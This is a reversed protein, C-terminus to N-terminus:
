AFDQVVAESIAGNSALQKLMPAAHDYRMVVKKRRGSKSRFTIKLVETQSYSDTIVNIRKLDVTELDEFSFTTSGAKKVTLSSDSVYVRY